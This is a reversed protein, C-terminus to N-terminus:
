ARSEGRFKKSNSICDPQSIGKCEVISRQGVQALRIPANSIKEFAYRGLRVAWRGIDM